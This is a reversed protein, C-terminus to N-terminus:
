KEINKLLSFKFNALHDQGHNEIIRFVNFSFLQIM